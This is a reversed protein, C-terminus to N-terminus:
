NDIQKYQEYKKKVLRLFYSITTSFIGTAILSLGFWVVAAYGALIPNVLLVIGLVLGILAFFLAFGWNKVGYNKLDISYGIGSVSRFIVLFGVYFALVELSFIPNSLLVLGVFVSLLGFALSWGWNVMENRNSFAFFSEFIGSVLFTVSFFTALAAYSMLPNVFCWIGIVIFLIGAILPVWWKKVTSRMSNLFNNEM